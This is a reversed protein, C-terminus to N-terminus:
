TTRYRRRYVLVVTIIGALLLLSIFRSEPVAASSVKDDSLSLVDKKVKTGKTNGAVSLVFEGKGHVFPNYSGRNEIPANGKSHHATHGLTQSLVAVGAALGNLPQNSGSDTLTWAILNSNPLSSHVMAVAQGGSQVDSFTDMSYSGSGWNRDTDVTFFQDNVDRGISRMQAATLFNLLDATLTGARSTFSDSSDVPGEGVNTAGPFGSVAITHARLPAPAFTLFAAASFLLFRWPSVCSATTRFTSLKVFGGLDQM